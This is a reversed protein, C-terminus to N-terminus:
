IPQGLDKEFEMTLVRESTFPWLVKPIVCDLGTSELHISATEANKGENTFDLEKPLQPTLEECIWGFNFDQFVQEAIGVM